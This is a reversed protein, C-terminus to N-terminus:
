LLDRGVLRPQSTEFVIHKKNTCLIISHKVVTKKM